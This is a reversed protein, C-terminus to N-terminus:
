HVRVKLTLLLCAHREIGVNRIAVEGQLRGVLTVEAQACRVGVDAEDALIAAM